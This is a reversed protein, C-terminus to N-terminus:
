RALEDEEQKEKRFSAETTDVFKQSTEKSIERSLDRIETAIAKRTEKRLKETRLRIDLQLKRITLREIRDHGTGTKAVGVFKLSGQKKAKAVERSREAETEAKIRRQQTRRKYDKKEIEQQILSSVAVGKPQRPQVPKPKIVEAPKEEVKKAKVKVKPEFDLSQTRERARSNAMLTDYMEATSLELGSLRASRAKVGRYEFTLSKSFSGNKNQWLSLHIREAKTGWSTFASDDRGTKRRYRIRIGVKSLKEEFDTISISTDLCKQVNEAMYEKAKEKSIKPQRVTVIKASKGLAKLCNRTVSDNVPRLTREWNLGHRISRGFCDYNLIVIHNHVHHSEGDAQTFVCFPRKVGKQKLIEKVTKTGIEQAKSIFDPDHESLESEDFSQVISYMSVKKNENKGFKAFNQQAELDFNQVNSSKALNRVKIVDDEVHPNEKELYELASEGSHQHPSIPNFYKSSVSIVSM